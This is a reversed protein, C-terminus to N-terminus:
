RMGLNKKLIDVFNEKLNDKFNGRAAEDEMLSSVITGNYEQLLNISHDSVGLVLVKDHVQVVQIFKKPMIMQTSLVRIRVLKKTNKDFSFFYRKAMYLTGYMLGLILILLFIIKIINFFEM